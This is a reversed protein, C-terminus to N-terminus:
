LFVLCYVGEFMRVHCEIIIHMQLLSCATQCLTCVAKHSTIGRVCIKGKHQTLGNAYVSTQSVAPSALDMLGKFGSNFGM